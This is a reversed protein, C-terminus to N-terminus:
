EVKYEGNGLWPIQWYGDPSWAGELITEPADGNEPHFAARVPQDEPTYFRLAAGDARPAAEGQEGRLTLSVYLSGDERLQMAAELDAQTETLESRLNDVPLAIAAEGGEPRIVLTTIRDSELSRLDGETLTLRLFPDGEAGAPAVTSEAPPLATVVAEPSPEPPEPEKAGCFVCVGKKFAHPRILEVTDRKEVSIVEGCDNCVIEVRASGYVRHTTDNISAYALNDFYFVERTSEHTCELDTPTALSPNDEEAVGVSLITLTLLALLVALIRKM